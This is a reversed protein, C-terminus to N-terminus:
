DCVRERREVREGFRNTYRRVVWRCDEDDEEIVRRRREIYRPREREEYVRPGGPGIEIGLQAQAPSCLSLTVSGILAAFTSTILFPRM